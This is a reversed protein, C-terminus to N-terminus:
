RSQSDNIQNSVRHQAYTGFIFCIMQGYVITMFGLLTIIYKTSGKISVFFTLYICLTEAIFTGIFITNMIRCIFKNIKFMERTWNIIRSKFRDLFITCPLSPDIEISSSILIAADTLRHYKRGYIYLYLASIITFNIEYTCVLYGHFGTNITAFITLPLWSIPWNILIPIHVASACVVAVILNFRLVILALRVGNQTQLDSTYEPHQLYTMPKIWLQWEPRSNSLEHFVRCVCAATFWVLCVLLFWFAAEGMFFSFNALIKSVFPDHVHFLLIAFRLTGLILQPFSILYVFKTWTRPSFNGSTVYIFRLCSVKFFHALSRYAMQDALYKLPLFLTNALVM